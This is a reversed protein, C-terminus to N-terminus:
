RIIAPYELRGSQGPEVVGLTWRIHTVDAHEAARTEGTESEVTLTALAGWSEGGDVSVELGTDADPALRVAAPVPNTLVFDNVPDSGINRYDTTFLLRDGPVIVDPEVMETTQVGNEDTVVRVLHVDGELVLPSDQAAMAPASIALLTATIPIFYKKLM